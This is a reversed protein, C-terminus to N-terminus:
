IATWSRTRSAVFLIIYKGAKQQSKSFLLGYRLSNSPKRRVWINRKFTAWFTYFHMWLSWKVIRRIWELRIKSSQLPPWPTTSKVSRMAHSSIRWTQRVIERSLAKFFSFHIPFFTPPFLHCYLSVYFPRKRTLNTQAQPRPRPKKSTRTWYLKLPTAFQTIPLCPGSTKESACATIIFLSITNLIICM